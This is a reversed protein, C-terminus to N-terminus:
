GCDVASTSMAGTASSYVLWGTKYSSHKTCATYTAGTLKVHAVVSDSAKYGEAGLLTLDSTYVDKNSTAYSAESVIVSHLDSVMASKFGKQQQSRFVPLAIAALVSVVAMVITLEVLTFGRDDKTTTTRM